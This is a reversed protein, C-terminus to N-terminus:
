EEKDGGDENKTAINELESAPISTRRKTFLVGKFTKVTESLQSTEEKWARDIAPLPWPIEL